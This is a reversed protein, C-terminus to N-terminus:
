SGRRLPSFLEPAAERIFVSRQPRKRNRLHGLPIVISLPPNEIDGLTLLHFTLGLGVAVRPKGLRENPIATM